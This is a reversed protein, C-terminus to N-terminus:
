ELKSWLPMFFKTKNLSASIIYKISSLHELFLISLTSAMSLLFHISIKSKLLLSKAKHNLTAEAQTTLHIILSFASTSPQTAFLFIKLKLKTQIIYTWIPCIISSITTICNWLNTSPSSQYSGWLKRPCCWRPVGYWCDWTFQDM